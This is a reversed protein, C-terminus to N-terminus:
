RSRRRWAAAARPPPRTRRAGARGGADEVDAHGVAGIRLLYEGYPSDPRPRISATSSSWTAPCRRGSLAAADGRGHVGPGRGAGDRADCEAPRRAALRDAEVVLRWPGDGDPVTALPPPAPRFSRWASRSSGPAARSPCCRGRGSGRGRRARRAPDGRDGARDLGRPPEARGTRCRGRGRDCRTALRSSRGMEAAGDRPGQAERLDERRRAQPDAPRRGVRVATRGAVRPDQGGHGARDRAAHRTARRDGPQPRDTRGSPAGGRRERRGGLWRREGACDDSRRRRGAVPGPDPRRGEAARGPEARARGPRCRRATRLWGGCGVLDGVRSGAPLRFVGPRSSRASSRSSSSGAREGPHHGRRREVSSGPGRQDIARWGPRGGFGVLHGGRGPVGRRDAPRRRRRQGRGMAPHRAVVDRRASWEAAGNSAAPTPDELVRWPAPHQDM